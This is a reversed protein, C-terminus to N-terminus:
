GWFKRDLSRYQVEEAIHTVTINEQADLDAITRSVKLIRNYARASLKLYTFAKKLLDKGMQDLNCYVSMQRADLQSNFFINKRNYRDLQIKRADNVRKKIHISSEEEDGQELQHYSVPDVQIQIDIRDLLPCPKM